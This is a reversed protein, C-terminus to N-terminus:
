EQLSVYLYLHEVDLVALLYKMPIKKGNSTTGSDCTYSRAASANYM